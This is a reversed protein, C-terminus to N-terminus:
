WVAASAIHLKGSGAVSINLGRATSALALSGLPTARQRQWNIGDGSVRMEDITGSGLPIFFVGNLFGIPGAVLVPFNTIQRQTWTIGDPSTVVYNNNLTAVWIGNGYVLGTSVGISNARRTWTTGDPSTQIEPGGGLAVFLGNAFRVTTFTGSYSSGPTRHTWTTGDPSTQIEGSAGVAVFVGAGYAISNFTNAYAAAATRATWASVGTTSTQIGGTQGVAVFTTGNDAIGKFSGAYAAAAARHTWTEADQSTQIEGTDGVVVILDPGNFDNVNPRIAVANFTGSYAGANTVQKWSTLAMRQALAKQAVNLDTAADLGLAVIFADRDDRFFLVWQYLLNLVWNLWRPPLLKSFSFGAAKQGGSPEFTSGVGTGWLPLTGPKAM